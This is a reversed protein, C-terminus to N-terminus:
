IGLVYIQSELQGQGLVDLMLLSFWHFRQAVLDRLLSGLGLWDVLWPLAYLSHRLRSEGLAILPSTDPELFLCTLDVEARLGSAINAVLADPM